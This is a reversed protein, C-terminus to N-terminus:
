PSRGGRAVVDAASASPVRLFREETAPDIVDIVADSNPEVWAGGIFFRDVHHLPVPQRDVITM